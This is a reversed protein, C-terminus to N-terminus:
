RWSPPKRGTTGRRTEAGAAKSRVATRVQETQRESSWARLSIREDCAGRSNRAGEGAMEKNSLLHHAEHANTSLRWLAERLLVVILMQVVRGGPFGFALLRERWAWMEFCSLARARGDERGVQMAKLPWLNREGRAKGVGWREECSRRVKAAVL